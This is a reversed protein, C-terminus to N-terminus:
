KMGKHGTIIHYHLHVHILKGTEIDEGIWDDVGPYRSGYQSKCKMYLCKKLIEEAIQKNNKSILVDLDTDGLLGEVLHENSKWHCYKINNKNFEDFLELSKKLM